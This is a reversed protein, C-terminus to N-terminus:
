AGIVHCVLGMVGKVLRSKRGSHALKSRPEEALGDGVLSAISGRPGELVSKGWCLWEHRQFVWGKPIEDAAIAHSDARDSLPESLGGIFVRGLIAWCPNNDTYRFIARLM